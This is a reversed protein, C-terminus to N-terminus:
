WSYLNTGSESSKEGLAMWFWFSPISSIRL